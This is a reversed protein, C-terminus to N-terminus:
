RPGRGTPSLFGASSKPTFSAPASPSARFGAGGGAAAASKSAQQAGGLLTGAAAFYSGVKAAKGRARAARGEMVFNSANIDYGQIERRTNEGIISVDEAGIQATALQDEFASGFGTDLGSAAQGARLRGVSQSVARYRRMQEVNGREVADKVKARELAANQEAVRQEYKSQANAAQGAYLQGGATVVAAAVALVAPNCV